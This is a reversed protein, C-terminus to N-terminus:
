KGGSGVQADDALQKLYTPVDKPPERNPRGQGFAAALAEKDRRRKKAPTGCGNLPTRRSICM